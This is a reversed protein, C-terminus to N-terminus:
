GGVWGGAWGVKVIEAASPRDAPRQSWCRRILRELRAPCSFPCPQQAAKPLPLASSGASAVSSSPLAKELTPLPPRQGQLLVQMIIATPPLGRWPKQRALM